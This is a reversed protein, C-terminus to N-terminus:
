TGADAASKGTLAYVASEVMADLKDEDVTYGREKLWALVYAKKQEGTGSGYLQEAAQVAVSVLMALVQQQAATTKAKIYPVVFATLLAGVLTVVAVVVPTLDILNEM